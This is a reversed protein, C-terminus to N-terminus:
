TAGEEQETGEGKAEDRQERGERGSGGEWGRGRGGAGEGGVKCGRQFLAWAEGQVTPAARDFPYMGECTAAALRMGALQVGLTSGRTASCPPTPPRPAPATIPTHFFFPHANTTTATTTSSHHNLPIDTPCRSCHHQPPLRQNDTFVLHTFACVPPTAAVACTGHVLVSPQRWCAKWYAGAQGAKVVGAVMTQNQAWRKVAIAINEAAASALFRGHHLALHALVDLM